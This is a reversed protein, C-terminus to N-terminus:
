NCTRLLVHWRLGAAKVRSYKATTELHAQGVGCEWARLWSSKWPLHSPTWFGRGQLCLKLKLTENKTQQNLYKRSEQSCPAPSKLRSSATIGQLVDLTSTKEMTDALTVATYYASQLLGAKRCQLYAFMWTQQTKRPSLLPQEKLTFGSHNWLRQAVDQSFM